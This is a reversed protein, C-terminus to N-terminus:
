IYYINIVETYEWTFKLNSIDCINININNVDDNKFKIELENVNSKFQLTQYDAIESLRDYINDNEKM